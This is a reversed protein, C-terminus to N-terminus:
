VHKIVGSIIDQRRKFRPADNIARMMPLQAELCALETDLAAKQDDSLEPLVELPTADENM